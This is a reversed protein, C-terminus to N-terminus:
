LDFYLSAGLTYFTKKNSQNLEHTISYDAAVKLYDNFNYYIGITGKEKDIQDHTPHNIPVYIEGSVFPILYYNIRYRLTLKDRNYAVSNQKTEGIVIPNFSNQIRARLSFSFKKIGKSYTIDGYIMSREDYYNLLTRQLTFRYNAGLIFNKNIKYNLGLDFFSTGLEALNQSFTEENYLTFSFSKSIKKKLGFAIKGKFDQIQSYGSNTFALLLIITFFLKM